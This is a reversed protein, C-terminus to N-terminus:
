ETGDDKVEKEKGKAPKTAEERTIYKVEVEEGAAYSKAQEGYSPLFLRDGAQWVGPAEPYTKFFDKVTM